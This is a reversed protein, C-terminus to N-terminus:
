PKVLAKLPEDWAGCGMSKGMGSLIPGRSLHFRGHNADITLNFSGDALAETAKQYLRVAEKETDAYVEVMISYQQTEDPKTHRTICSDISRALDDLMIERWAEANMRSDQPQGKIRFDLVKQSLYRLVETFDKTIFDSVEGEQHHDRGRWLHGDRRQADAGPARAGVVPHSCLAGGETRQSAGQVEGVRRPVPQAGTKKQKKIYANLRRLRPDDHDVEKGGQSLFGIVKARVDEAMQLTVRKKLLLDTMNGDMVATLVEEKAATPRGEARKPRTTDM